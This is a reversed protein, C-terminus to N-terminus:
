ARPSSTAPPGCFRWMLWCYWRRRRRWCSAEQVRLRRARHPEQRPPPCPPRPRAAIFPINFSRHPHTHPTPPPRTCILSPIISAFLSVDRISDFKTLSFSTSHTSFSSQPFVWGDMWAAMWHFHILDLLSHLPILFCTRWPTLLGFSTCIQQIRQNQPSIVYWFALRKLCNVHEHQLTTRQVFIMM